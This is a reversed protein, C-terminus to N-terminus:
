NYSKCDLRCCNDVWEKFTAVCPIFHASYNSEKLRRAIGEADPDIIIHRGDFSQILCEYSNKDLSNFSYGISVLTDSSRLLSKAKKYTDQIFSKKTLDKAKDPVPAIIRQETKELNPFPKSKKYPLFLNTLRVPDFHYDPSKKLRLWSINDGSKTELDIDITSICFSGHLHLVKCCSSDKRKTDTNKLIAKVSVGFGDHPYWRKLKFLITEVLSDYNFTLFSSNKFKNFFKLYCNSSKDEFNALEYALYHDAKTIEDYLKTLPKFNKESIAKEFREEISIIQESNESDFFKELDSVLPYDVQFENVYMNPAMVQVVEGKADKNFGAGLIFIPNGM